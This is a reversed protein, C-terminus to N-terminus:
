EAPMREPRETRRNAHIAEQAAGVLAGGAIGLLAGSTFTRYTDWRATSSNTGSIPVPNALDNTTEDWTMTDIPTTAFDTHYQPNYTPSQAGTWDYGPPLVYDVTVNPNITSRHPYTDVQVQPLEAEVNLGNEDWAFVSADVVMKIISQYLITTNYILGYSEQGSLLNCSPFQCGQVPEIRAPAYVTLELPEKVEGLTIPTEIDINLSFRDPQLRSVEIQIGIDTAKTSIFVAFPQPRYVPARQPYLAFAGVGMLVFLASLIWTGTYRKFWSDGRDGEQRKPSDGVHGVPEATRDPPELAPAGESKREM